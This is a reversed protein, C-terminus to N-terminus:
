TWADTLWTGDEMVLHRQPMLECGACVIIERVCDPENIEIFHTNCQKCRTKLVRCRKTGDGNDEPINVWGIYYEEELRMLKNKMKNYSQEDYDRDYWVVSISTTCKSCEREIYFKGKYAKCGESLKFESGEPWPEGCDQCYCDLCTTHCDSRTM